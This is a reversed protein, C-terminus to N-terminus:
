FCFLFLLGYIDENTHGNTDADTDQGSKAHIFSTGRRSALYKSRCNFMARKYMRQTRLVDADSSTRLEQM